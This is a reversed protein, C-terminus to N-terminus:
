ELKFRAEMHPTQPSPFLTECIFVLRVQPKDGQVVTQKLSIDTAQSNAQVQNAAVYTSNSGQLEQLLPTCGPTKYTTIDNFAWHLQGNQTVPQTVNLLVNVTANEAVM